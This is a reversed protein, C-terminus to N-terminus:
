HARTAVAAADRTPLEEGGDSPGQRDRRDGRVQAGARGLRLRGPAAADQTQCDDRVREVEIGM